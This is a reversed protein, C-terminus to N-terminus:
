QEHSESPESKCTADRVILVPCPSRRVVKETVSGLLLHSFGTRGNTGMVLLDCRNELAFELIMRTPDGVQMHRTLKPSDTRSALFRSMEREAQARAFDKFSQRSKGSVDVMVEAGVYTPQRIVHLIDISADVLAALFQAHDLAAASCPSFDIPVLIRSITVM